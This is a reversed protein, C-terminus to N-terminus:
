KRFYYKNMAIDYLGDNYSLYSDGFYYWQNYDDKYWGKISHGSEDAYVYGSTFSGNIFQSVWMTNDQVMLGNFDFAYYYGDVLCIKQLPMLVMVKYASGDVLFLKGRIRLRKEMPVLMIHIM